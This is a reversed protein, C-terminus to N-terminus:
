IAAANLSDVLLDLDIKGTLKILLDNDDLADNAEGVYSDDEFIDGEENEGLDAYIYTANGLQFVVQDKTTNAALTNLIVGLNTGTVTVKQFEVLGAVDIMDSKAFDLTGEDNEVLNLGTIVDTKLVTSGFNAAETENSDAYFRVYDIGSSLTVDEVTVSNGTEYYLNSTTDGKAGGADSNGGWWGGGFAWTEDELTEAYTGGMASADVTALKSGVGNWVYAIGDGKLTLNTLNINSNATKNNLDTEYKYAELWVNGIYVGDKATSLANTVTITATKVDSTEGSSDYINAAADGDKQATVKLDLTEAYAHITGNGTQTIDLSGALTSGVTASTAAVYGAATAKLDGDVTLKTGAAVKSITNVDIYNGDGDTTTSGEFTFNKYNSMRSADVVAASDTFKVAEFGVVGAELMAYDGAAFTMGEFAITDTGDGGDILDSEGLSALGNSLTVTDNGAGASVLTKFGTYGDADTDVTIKDDGAGTTVSATKDKATAVYALTVDDKGSGTTITMVEDDAAFKIGGTSASADLVSVKKTAGAAETVTVTADVATNVAVSTLDKGATVGITLVSKNTAAAGAALTGSVNVANLVKGSVNLAIENDGTVSAAEKVGDLAVTVSAAADAAAVSLTNGATKRFGATTTASLKTVDAEAAIQWIETAAAGFKSADVAAASNAQTNDINIIEINKITGQFTGNFDNTEGNAKVEINLTDTGAGGDISDVSNLTTVDAGTVSNFAFANFTDGNSTGTLADM